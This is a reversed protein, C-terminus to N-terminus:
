YTHHMFLRFKSWNRDAKRLRLQILILHNESRKAKFGHNLHLLTETAAAAHNRMLALLIGFHFREIAGRSLHLYASPFVCLQSELDLNAHCSTACHIQLPRRAACRQSSPLKSNSRAAASAADLPTSALCWDTLRDAQKQLCQISLKPMAELSHALSAM